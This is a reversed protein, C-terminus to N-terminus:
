LGVANAGYQAQEPTFKDYELQAILGGSSFASYSMYEKATKAAEADWNAGCNDAGYTADAQSFQDYELQAILGEYSFGSYSLYDIAKAVANQQSVTENSTPSLNSVAPTPTAYNQTQASVNVTVSSVASANGKICTLSYIQTAILNPITQVGSTGTFEAPSIQCSDANSSSWTLTVSSGYPVMISGDSGNAKINAIPQAAAPATTAPTSSQLSQNYQYQVTALGQAGNTATLATVTADISSFTARTLPGFFGSAPTIGKAQQYSILANKTAPGFYGTPVSIAALYGDTILAQQLRFVDAGQSGITLNRTFIESSTSPQSTSASPAVATNSASNGNVQNQLQTIQQLLAQIQAQVSATTQAFALMPAFVTLVLVLLTLKKM